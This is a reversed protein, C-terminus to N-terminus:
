VFSVQDHVLLLVGQIEDGGGHVEQDHYGGDGDGVSLDCRRRSRLM